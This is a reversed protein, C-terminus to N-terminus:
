NGIYTIVKTITILCKNILYVYFHLKSSPRYNPPTGSFNIKYSSVLSKLLRLNLDSLESIARPREFIPIPYSIDRWDNFTVNSHSFFSFPASVKKNMSALMINTTSLLKLILKQKKADSPKLQLSSNISSLRHYKLQVIRFQCEGILRLFKEGPKCKCM